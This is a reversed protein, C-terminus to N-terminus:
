GIRQGPTRAAARRVDFDYFTFQFETVNVLIDEPPVGNVLFTDSGDEYKQRIFCFNLDVSRDVRLNIQGFNGLIKNQAPSSADYSSLTHVVLDLTVGFRTRTSLGPMSM